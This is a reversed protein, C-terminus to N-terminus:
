PKSSSSPVLQFADFIAGPNFGGSGTLLGVLFNVLVFSLLIVLFGLIANTLITKANSVEEDNGRSTVMRIGAYVIFLICVLWAWSLLTNVILRLTQILDGLECAKSSVEPNNGGCTVLAASAIPAIALGLIVM